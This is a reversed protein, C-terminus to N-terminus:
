RKSGLGVLRVPARKAPTDKQRGANAFTEPSSIGLYRYAHVYGSVQQGARTLSALTSNSKQLRRLIAVQILLRKCRDGRGNNSASSRRSMRKWYCTRTMQTGTRVRKRKTFSRRADSHKQPLVSGSGIKTSSDSNFIHSSGPSWPGWRRRSEVSWNSRAPRCLYLPSRFQPAM